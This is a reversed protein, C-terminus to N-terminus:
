GLLARDAVAGLIAPVGFALQLPSGSAPSGSGSGSWGSQPPLDAGSSATYRSGEHTKGMCWREGDFGVTPESGDSGAIGKRFCPKGHSTGGAKDTDVTYMGNFEPLECGGVVFWRAPIAGLAVRERLAGYLEIGACSLSNGGGSNPGVQRIRFCRWPAAGSVPWAGVSWQTSRLTADDTHRRLTTWPGAATAAGELEWSRLTYVGYGGSPGNRLAYHDLALTRDPGLDVMMWQGVKDATRSQDGKFGGNATREPGAVFNSVHSQYGSTSSWTVAVRGATHPNTWSSTRGETAIHYLAGGTDFTSRGVASFACATQSHLSGLHHTALRHLADVCARNALQKSAAGREVAARLTRRQEEVASAAFAAGLANEIPKGARLTAVVKMELFRRADDDLDAAAAAQRCLSAASFGYMASLQAEADEIGYYRVMSTDHLHMVTELPEVLAAAAQVEYQKSEAEREEQKRMRPAHEKEAERHTQQDDYAQDEALQVTTLFAFWGSPIMANVVHVLMQARTMARYLMSRAELVDVNTDDIPSDLGVAIVILRELGDLQEIEDLLLWETGDTTPGVLACAEQATALQFNREPFAQKLQEQLVPQLEDRFATDPVILALRDHLSLGAFESAVHQFSLITQQAYAEMPDAGEAIDFLFSKLPPGTSQHQCKTNLTNSDDKGNGLGQFQKVAAVIRQSSRVVQTLIVEHLEPPFQVDSRRSQSVDSLLMLRTDQTYKTVSSRLAEDRYIHHAEDIVVLGYDQSGQVPATRLTGNM